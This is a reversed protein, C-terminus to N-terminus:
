KSAKFLSSLNGFVINYLKFGTSLAAIPVNIPHKWSAPTQPFICCPEAQHNLSWLVPIISCIVEKPFKPNNPFKM